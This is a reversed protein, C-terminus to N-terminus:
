PAWLGPSPQTSAAVSQLDPLVEAAVTTAPGHNAGEFVWLGLGGLKCRSLMNSPTRSWSRWYGFKTPSSSPRGERLSIAMPINGLPSTTVASVFHMLLLCQQPLLLTMFVFRTPKRMLYLIVALLATVILISAATPDNVLLGLIYLPTTQM